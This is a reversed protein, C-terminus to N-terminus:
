PSLTRALPRVPESGTALKAFADAARGAGIVGAVCATFKTRLEAVGLPESPHGRNVLRTAELSRGDSLVVTVSGPFTVPYPSDSWEEVTVKRAVERVDERHLVGQTFTQRTIDGDLLALGILWPISFRIAYISDPELKSEWPRCLLDWTAEPLRCRIERVDAARLGEARLQCIADITAHSFHCVPYPKVSVQEIEWKTGLTAMVSEVSGPGEGLSHYLGLRGEFVYEPGSVGAAALAAAQVGAQAAFAPNLLKGQTGDQLYVNL